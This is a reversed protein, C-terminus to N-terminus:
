SCTMKFYSYTSPFNKKTIDKNGWVRISFEPNMKRFGKLFLKFYDPLPNTGIWIFHIKKLIPSIWKKMNYERKISKRSTKKKTTKRM